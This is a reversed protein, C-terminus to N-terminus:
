FDYSDFSGKLINKYAEFEIPNLQPCTVRIMHKEYEQTKLIMHIM